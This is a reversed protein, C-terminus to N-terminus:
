PGDSQNAYNSLDNSNLSAGLFFQYPGQAIGATGTLRLTYTGSAPLFFDFQAGNMVGASNAGSGKGLDLPKSDPGLVKIAKNAASKLTPFNILLLVETNARAYFTYDHTSGVVLTGAAQLPQEGLSGLASRANFFAGVPLGLTTGLLNASVYGGGLVLLIVSVAAFLMWWRPKRQRRVKDFNKYKQSMLDAAQAQVDDLMQLALVNDPEIALLQRLALVSDIQSPASNAMLWLGYVNNPQVDLVTQIITRALPRHKAELLATARKLQEKVFLNLAPGYDPNLALVRECAEVALESDPASNALLWWGEPSDPQDKVLSKLLAYAQPKDGTKILSYAQQYQPGTDPIM